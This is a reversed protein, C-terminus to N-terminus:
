CVRAASRIRHERLLKLKSLPTLFIPRTARHHIHAHHKTVYDGLNSPGPAWYHRFQGQNKRCRLWHFRMDMAKTRKPQITNSIVGLATTNDTQMPTPPQKHGVEELTHRAPIAEHCNLYLAGLEAEAASSMVAKIIQAVTLVAGNNPPNPTDDSMFFHGGARSRANSKSLYSADSHGALVMASSKYTVIADPHSAAYDLFQKVKRMTNETPNAQQSAISGLAALM